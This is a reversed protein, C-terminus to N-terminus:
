EGYNTSPKKEAEMLDWGLQRRIEKRSPAPRRETQGRQTYPREERKDPNRRKDMLYGAFHFVLLFLGASSPPAKSHCQDLTNTQM